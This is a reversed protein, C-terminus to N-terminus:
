KIMFVIVAITGALSWIIYAAYNGTHFARVITSLTIACFPIFGDYIWNIFKDVIVACKAAWGSFAMALEYPDFRRHDMRTHFAGLWARNRTRISLAATVTGMLQEKMGAALFALAIIITSAALFLAAYEPNEPFISGASVLFFGSVAISIYSLLKKPSKQAPAMVIGYGLTALGAAIILFGAWSSLVYPFMETTMRILVYIGLLRALSGSFFATLALPTEEAADPMWSHLPIAGVKAIVGVLMFIFAIGGAGDLPIRMQSITLTHASHEILAIAFMLCLDSVGVIIFAKVATKYADKHATAIMGFLPILLGEWFFLMMTLNDSILAGNILALSVLLFPFFTYCYDANERQKICYLVVLVSVIATAVLLFGAIADLRFACQTGAWPVSFYRPVSFLALTLALTVTCGAVATAARLRQPAILALLASAVPVIILYFLIPIDM